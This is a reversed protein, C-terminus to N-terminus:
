LVSRNNRLSRRIFWSALAIAVSTRVLVTTYIAWRLGAFYIKEKSRGKRPSLRVFLTVLFSLDPHSYTPLSKAMAVFPIQETKRQWALRGGSDDDDGGPATMEILERTMGLTLGWLRLMHGSESPLDIAPFSITGLSYQTIPAMIRGM